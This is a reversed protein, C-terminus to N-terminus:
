ETDAPTTLRKPETENNDVLEGEEIPENFDMIIDPLKKEGEASKKGYTESDLRETVYKSVDAAIKENESNGLRKLTSEANNLMLKHKMKRTQDYICPDNFLYWNYFTNYAIGYKKAVDAITKNKIEIMYFVDRVFRQNELVSPYSLGHSNEIKTQIKQIEEKQKKKTEKKM